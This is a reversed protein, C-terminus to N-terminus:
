REAHKKRRRRGTKNKKESSELEEEGRVAAAAGSFKASRVKARRTETPELRALHRHLTKLQENLRAIEDRTPLNLDRLVVEVRELAARSGSKEAEQALNRLDERLGEDADTESLFREALHQARGHENASVAARVAGRRAVAGEPDSASVVETIKEELLSVDLYARAAGPAGLDQLTEARLIAETVLPYLEEISLRDNM